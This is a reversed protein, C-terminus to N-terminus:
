TDNKIDSSITIHNSWYIECITYISMLLSLIALTALIDLRYIWGVALSVMLVLKGVISVFFAARQKNLIIPLQSIVSAFINIALWPSLIQTVVGASIWEPGFLNEFLLPAAAILILFVPIIIVALHRQMKSVLPYLKKGSSFTESARQFFIQATTSSVLSVPAGIIRMAFAYYGLEIKGFLTGIILPVVSSQITDMAVHMSNIIPFDKYRLANSRMRRRSVNKITFSSHQKAVWAFWLVAVLQGVIIGCILGLGGADGAYGALISVTATAIAQAIRAQSLTAFQKNRSLWYYLTQYIGTLLITLPIFYVWAPFKDGYQFWECVLGAVSLLLLVGASLLAAILVSLAVLNIVDRDQKPLMIAMEYRGTAIVTGFGAIALYLAYEGFDAVTYMRTLLPLSAFGILQAILTGSMLTAAHRIFSGAAFRRMLTEILYFM